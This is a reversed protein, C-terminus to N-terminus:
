KITKLAKNMNCKNIIDKFANARAKYYLATINQNRKAMGKYINVARKYEKM